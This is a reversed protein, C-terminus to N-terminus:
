LACGALTLILAIYMGFIQATRGGASKMIGIQRTQQTMLSHHQQHDPIHEFACDNLGSVGHSFIYGPGAAHLIVGPCISWSLVSRSVAKNWANRWQRHWRHVCPGPRNFKGGCQGGAQQLGPHRGAMGDNGSHCVRQDHECIRPGAPLLMFYGALRLSRHRRGCLEVAIQTVRSTGWGPQLLCRGFNGRGQASPHGGSGRVPQFTNVTLSNPDEIATLQIPVRNGDPRIVQRTMLSRGEVAGVGPVRAAMKVSEDNMPFAYILPKLPAPLFSILMWAKAHLFGFNVTFGVGFTGALIIM